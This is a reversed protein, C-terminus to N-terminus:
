RSGVILRARYDSTETRRKTSPHPTLELLRITRGGYVADTSRPDTGLEVMASGGGGSVDLLIRAKGAVICQAGEPCRSDEEVSAFRIRMDMGRIRATPGIALEFPEGPAAVREVPEQSAPTPRPAPEPTPKLAPTPRSLPAPTPRSMPDPTPTSTRAPTPTTTVCAAVPFVIALLRVARV